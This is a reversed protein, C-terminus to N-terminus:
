GNRSRLRRGRCPGACPPRIWGPAGTSRSASSLSVLSLAATSRASASRLAQGFAGVVQEVRRLLRERAERRHTLDGVDQAPDEPLVPGDSARPIPAPHAGRVWRAKVTCCKSWSACREPATGSTM